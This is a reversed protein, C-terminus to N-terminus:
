IEYRTCSFMRYLDCSAHGFSSNIADCQRAGPYIMHDKVSKSMLRIEPVSAM